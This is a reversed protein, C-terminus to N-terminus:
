EYIYKILTNKQNKEKKHEKIISLLTNIKRHYENQKHQLELFDKSTHALDKQVAQIEEIQLQYFTCENKLETVRQSVTIIKSKEM